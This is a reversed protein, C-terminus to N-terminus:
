QPFLEKLKAFMEDAMRNYGDQTPHVDDGGLEINRFTHRAFGEQAAMNALAGSLSLMPPELIAIVPMAGSARATSGMYRVADITGGFTAGRQQGDNLDNFGEMVLVADWKTSMIMLPQIRSAGSDPNSSCGRVSACEGGRGANFVLVGNGLQPDGALWSQLRGPYPPSAEYYFDQPPTSAIREVILGETFSDGIALVRFVFTYGGAATVTKGLSSVTVAKTGATGYGTQATRTPTLARIQTGSVFQVSPSPRGDFAVQVDTAVNAVNILVWEGGSLRGVKPHGPIVENGVVAASPAHIPAAPAAVTGTWPTGMNVHGGAFGAGWYVAREAVFVQGGATATGCPGAASSAVSEVVSAFSRNSLEIFDATWINARANGPVCRERQIGSGDERLFSARVTIPTPNPNSLLLFTQHQNPSGARYDQVGEAFAWKAAAAPAGATAHGEAWPQRPTLPDASSPTGWYVAREAVIPQPAQVTMGFAANELKSDYLRGEQDVWVTFRQRAPVVYVRSLAEGTDLQFTVTVSTDTSNQNALLLFTEFAISANGGTNGEAFYWHTSPASVGLADHGSRAFANAHPYDFYMAREAVVDNGPTLSQIVTSFEANALGPHETRPWFTARSSAAAQQESVFEQGTATLYTARVQTPSANPNAVLVFTDFATTAGEALIWTSAAQTVGSANHGGPQSGDPFYMTREVVVDAPTGTGRVVATVEASASGNLGFDAGLRVTLRSTRNLPFTKSVPQTLVADAQPLLRVTVDLDQQSPNGILIEGTFLANNAGEALFWRDLGQASAAPSLILVAAIALLAAFARSSSITLTRSDDM